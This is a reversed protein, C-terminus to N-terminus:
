TIEPDVKGALVLSLSQRFAPDEACKRALVDWFVLPNGDSAFLGAHVIRFKGDPSPAPAAFDDEDFGNTILEVQTRTRAQFDAQVRPSVAVVASAEDLVAQELREQSRRAWPLLPLHKFYFMKTWPDRFDAVWPIGLARHLRLGVLHMSHPPGTTVLADVPHEKLYSRLFREAPGVWGRRPDPIFLNARLFLLIKQILSKRQANIPNIGAGKGSGRGTLRRYAAYPERIPLRLVETEPPIDRLLSADTALREPNDPTCVVCQWDEGPLYKCMKVWRQVGSGGTPPWYYSIILVRKM